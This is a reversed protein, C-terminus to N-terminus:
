PSESRTGSSAGASVAAPPSPPTSPGAPSPSSLSQPPLSFPPSAPGKPSRARAPVQQTHKSVSCTRRHRRESFIQMRGMRAQRSLRARQVAPRLHTKTSLIKSYSGGVWM